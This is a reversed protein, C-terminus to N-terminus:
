GGKDGGEGAGGDGGKSDGDDGGVEEKMWVDGDANRDVVVEVM